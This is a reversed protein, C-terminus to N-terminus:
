HRRVNTGSDPDYNWEGVLTEPGFRDPYIMAFRDLIHMGPVHRYDAYEPATAFWKRALARRQNGGDGDIFPTRGHAVWGNRVICGSGPRDFHVFTSSPSFPQSHRTLFERARNLAPCGHRWFIEYEGSSIRFFSQPLGRDNLYLVPSVVQIAGKGRPRRATIADPLFLSTFAHRDDRALYLSLSVINQFYTYGGWLPVSDAFFIVAEVAGGYGLGDNHADFMEATEAQERYGTAGDRSSTLDYIKLTGDPPGFRSVAEAHGEMPHDIPNALPLVNLLQSALELLPHSRSGKEEPNLIIFHAVGQVSNYADGLKAAAESAVRRYDPIIVPDLPLARSPFTAPLDRLEDYGLAGLAMELFPERQELFAREKANRAIL